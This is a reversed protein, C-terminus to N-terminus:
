RTSICRVLPTVSIARHANVVHVDGGGPAIRVVVSVGAAADCEAAVDRAFAASGGAISRSSASVARVVTRPFHGRKRELSPSACSGRRCCAATSSSPESGLLTGLEFAESRPV